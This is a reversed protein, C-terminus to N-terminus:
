RELPAVFRRWLYNAAQDENMRKLDFEKEFQSFGMGMLSTLRLEGGDDVTSLIENCSNTGYHTQGEAYSIGDSSLMGGQWVRCRCTSKGNLFIEATFETATNSQFDCEVIDSHRSLEDLAARFHTQISDFAGRIFRRKEVDSSARKLKPIYATSASSGTPKTGPFVKPPRRAPVGPFSPRQTPKTRKENVGNILLTRATEEDENVLSIHVISRLLGPVECQRVVIPVLKRKLGQPDEAFAAAWEPSAFQSKMYDPSLLMVTRDANTAAKQMELVFNSGPRFDWAQIIVTLGEEELIYGVWEAWVKDSSTYSIFFDAMQLAWESITVARLFNVRSKTCQILFDSFTQALDETWRTFVSL